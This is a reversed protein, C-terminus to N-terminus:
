AARDSAFWGIVGGAALAVLLYPWLMSILYLM